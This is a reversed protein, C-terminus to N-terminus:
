KIRLRQWAQEDLFNETAGSNLLAMEKTIKGVTRFEFLVNM